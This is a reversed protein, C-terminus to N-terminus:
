QPGQSSCETWGDGLKEEQPAARPAGTRGAGGSHPGGPGAREGSHKGPLAAAWHRPLSSHGDWASWACGQRRPGLGAGGHAPQM